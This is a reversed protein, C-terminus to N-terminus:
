FEYRKNVTKDDEYFEPMTQKLHDRYDKLRKDIALDQPEDLDESKFPDKNSKITEKVPDLPMYTINHTSKEFALVKIVAFISAAIAILSMVFSLGFVLGYIFQISM